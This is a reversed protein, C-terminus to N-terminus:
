SSAIRSSLIAAVEELRDITLRSTIGLYSYYQRQHSFRRASWGCSNPGKRYARFCGHTGRFRFSPLSALWDFWQPSDPRIHLEGEQPSILVYSSDADYEILAPVRSRARLEAPHLSHAQVMSAEPLTQDTLPASIEPSCAGQTSQSAFAQLALLSHTREQRLELVLQTVHQQLTAVTVELSALKDMLAPDSESTVLGTHHQPEDVTICREHLSALLEVDEMKLGRIRADTPHSHVALQSQKLWQRLTKADVGLLRCCRTLPVLTM